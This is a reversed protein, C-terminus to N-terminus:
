TDPSTSDTEYYVDLAVQIREGYADRSIVIKHPTVLNKTWKCVNEVLRERILARPRHDLLFLSRRSRSATCTPHERDWTAKRGMGKWNALIITDRFM